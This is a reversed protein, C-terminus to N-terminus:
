IRYKRRQKKLSFNREGKFLGLPMGGTWVMKENAKFTTVKVPFARDPSLTTYAKLSEGLAATGEISIAYPDWEPYNATNTLMCWIKEAPANTSINAEYSQM